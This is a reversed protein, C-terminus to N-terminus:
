DNQFEWIKRLTFELKTDDDTRTVTVVEDGHREVFELQKMISVSHEVCLGCFLYEATVTNVADGYRLGMFEIIFWPNCFIKGPRAFWNLKLEKTKEM